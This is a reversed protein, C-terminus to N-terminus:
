RPAQNLSWDYNKFSIEAETSLPSSRYSNIYTILQKCGGFDKEYWKFIKSLQIGHKTVTFAHPNHNLFNETLQDLTTSLTEARFPKTHLPPCSRSACNLAFHIRPEQYRPRIIKQELDQFSMKKGSITIADRHFFLLSVNLPGKNPWQTLIQELIWSNYANLHWALAKHQDRPPRTSAYFHTTKRLNQLANTNKSWRTYDVGDPTVYTNLLVEYESPASQTAIPLGRDKSILSGTSCHSFILPALTALVLQLTRLCYKSLKM